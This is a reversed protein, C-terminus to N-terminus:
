LNKKATQLNRSLLFPIRANPNEFDLHLRREDRRGGNYDIRLGWAVKRTPISCGM